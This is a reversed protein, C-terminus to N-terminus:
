RKEEENRRKRPINKKRQKAVSFFFVIGLVLIPICLVALLIIRLEFM